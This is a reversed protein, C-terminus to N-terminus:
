DMYLTRFSPREMWRPVVGPPLRVSSESQELNDSVGIRRYNRGVPRKKLILLTPWPEIVRNQIILTVTDIMSVSDDPGADLIIPLQVDVTDTLPFVAYLVHDKWAFTPTIQQATIRLDKGPSADRLDGDNGVERYNHHETLDMTFHNKLRCVIHCKTHMFDPTEFTKACSWSAWSWSPFDPREVPRKLGSSINCWALNIGGVKEYSTMIPMGWHHLIKLRSLIGLFANIADKDYSLTRRSYEALLNNVYSTNMHAAFGKFTFPSMINPMLTGLSTGGLMYITDTRQRDSLTQDISEWFQTSKCVLVMGIETFLLKRQSLCGEQFTWGRSAWPSNQICQALDPIECLTLDGLKLTRQSRYQRGSLGPLGDDATGATAIITLDARAYIYDMM